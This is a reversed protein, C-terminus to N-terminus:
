PSLVGQLYHLEIIYYYKIKVSSLVISKQMCWAICPTKIFTSHRTRGSILHRSSVYVRRSLGIKTNEHLTQVALHKLCCLKVQNRRLRFQQMNSKFLSYISDLHLVFWNNTKHRRTALSGGFLKFSIPILVFGFYTPIIDVKHM